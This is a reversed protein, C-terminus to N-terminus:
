VLRERLDVLEDALALGHLVFTPRYYRACGLWCSPACTVMLRM